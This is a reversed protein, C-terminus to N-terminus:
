KIEIINIQKRNSPLLFKIINRAIKRYKEQIFDIKKLVPIYLMIKKELEDDMFFFEKHEIIQKYKKLKDVKMIFNYKQINNWNGSKILDYLNKRKIRFYCKFSIQKLNKPNKGSFFNSIYNRCEKYKIMSKNLSIYLNQLKSKQLFEESQYFRLFNIFTESDFEGLNLYQLDFSLINQINSIKSFSSEFSLLKLQPNKISFDMKGLTEDIIPYTINDFNFFPLSLKFEKLYLKEKHLLIFMNIIFKIIVLHYGENEKENSLFTSPLKIILELKEINRKSQFILFLKELNIELYELLKKKLLKEVKKNMIINKENKIININTYLESEQFLKILNYSSFNDDKFFDIKLEKLNSNNQVIYLINEFTKKELCNFSINFSNMSTITSIYEFLNIKSIVNLELNPINRFIILDINEKIFANPMIINLAKLYKIKKVLYFFCLVLDFINENKVLISMYNGYMSGCQILNSENEKNNNIINDVVFKENLNLYNTKDFDNKILNIMKINEIKLKNDNNSQSQNENLDDGFEYSYDDFNSKKNKLYNIYYNKENMLYYDYIDKQFIDYTFDMDVEFVFPFLWDYNLIIILLPLINNKSLNKLNLNIHKIGQLIYRLLLIENPIDMKPIEPANEPVSFNYTKYVKIIDIFFINYEEFKKLLDEYTRFKNKKSSFIKTFGLSILTCIDDLDESLFDFNMKYNKKIIKQSFVKAIKDYNEIQINKMKKFEEILSFILYIKETSKQLYEKILYHFLNYIPIYIITENKSSLEFFLSSKINALTANEYFQFKKKHNIKYFISSM